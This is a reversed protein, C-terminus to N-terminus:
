PYQLPENEPIDMIVREMQIMSDYLKELTNILLNCLPDHPQPIRTPWKGLEILRYLTEAIIGLFNGSLMLLEKFRKPFRFELQFLSIAATSGILMSVEYDIPKTCAAGFSIVESNEDQGRVTTGYTHDGLWSRMTFPLAIRSTSLELLSPLGLISKSCHEVMTCYELAVEPHDAQRAIIMAICEVALSLCQIPLELYSAREADKTHEKLFATSAEGAKGGLRLEIPILFPGSASAYTSLEFVGNKFICESFLECDRDSALTTFEM